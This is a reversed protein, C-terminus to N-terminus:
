GEVGDINDLFGYRTCCEYTQLFILNTDLGDDKAEYLLMSFLLAFDAEDLETQNDQAIRHLICHVSETLRLKTM